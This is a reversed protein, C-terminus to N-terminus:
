GIDRIDIFGSMIPKPDETVLEYRKPMQLVFPCGDKAIGCSGCSGTSCTSDVSTDRIKGKRVWYGIMDEVLSQDVNLKHALQRLSLPQSTDKFAELVDRLM